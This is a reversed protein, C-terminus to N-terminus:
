DIVRLSRLDNCLNAAKKTIEIRYLLATKFKHEAKSLLSEIGDLIEYVNSSSNLAELLEIIKGHIQMVSDYQEIKFRYYSSISTLIFTACFTVNLCRRYRVFIKREHTNSDMEELQPLKRIISRFTDLSVLNPIGREIHELSNDFKTADDFQIFINSAIINMRKIDEENFDMTLDHITKLNTMMLEFNSCITGRITLVDHIDTRQTILFESKMKQTKKDIEMLEEKTIVSKDM